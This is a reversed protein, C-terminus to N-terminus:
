FLLQRNFSVTAHKLAIGPHVEKIEQTSTKPSPNHELYRIVYEIITMNLRHHEM